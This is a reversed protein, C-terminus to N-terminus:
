QYQFQYKNEIAIIYGLSSLRSDYFKIKEKQSEWFNLFIEAINMAIYEKNCRFSALQNITDNGPIRKGANTDQFEQIVEARKLALNREYHMECSKFSSKAYSYNNIILRCIRLFEINSTKLEDLGDTENIQPLELLSEWETLSRGRFKAHSMFDSTVSDYDPYGELATDAISYTM